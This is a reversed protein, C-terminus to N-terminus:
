PILKLLDDGIGIRYGQSFYMIEGKKNVLIVVPLSQGVSQQLSGSFVSFSEKGYLGYSVGAPMDSGSKAIFDTKDKEDKFLLHIGANCASFEKRKDRLDAVFHKTPEKDPEMFAIIVDGTGKYGKLASALKERGIFGLIAPAQDKRLIIEKRVHRGKELNFFHLNALVTGDKMRNGTVMLYNGAALDLECPFSGLRPDTEYDLSRYFGDTFKELTFHTYYGPKMENKPDNELMLKVRTGTSPGPKEFLADHWISGHFYQPLRTGPELRSPIGMSRCLAVFFIDRSHPDAIRLGYVGEPTIPARGYNGKLDVKVANRVYDVLFDPNSVAKKWFRKDFSRTIHSRWAKMWENDIRPNLIYKAFMEHSYGEPNVTNELHDLLVEATADRLDKESLQSLLTFVWKRHKPSASSAFDIISRYNGRSKRIFTWLSDPAVKLTAALRFSKASDPFTAEYAARLKDEFALMKTNAEKLSDPIVASSTKEPPPTFDMNLVYEAGPGQNAVLRLTDTDKVRLRAFGYNGRHAAWVMLDGFGTTFSCLGRSDTYTRLLPYFEAYNYLQFEVAASDAPNGASDTVYVCVRKVDTYNQLINIRTYREDKLLVDEPGRYDGFVNTNVLMARKAPGTFWAADLVPEPECAGIFHWTGDVWVEVWAHNDDCHAWRPTYCQRAPICVARLAAVTFTSEEGCRGFATRVTALPSSTREDTGRYTVKEHCWHNVALVADKMSMGIIRGRLERFFVMRSTDLNENNVRVPLVFHRFIEDPIKQGWSFTDRAHFSYRVNKLFFDGTYDAIDSLPSYALIFELAEMDRLLMPEDAVKFVQKYRSKCLERQKEYQREVDTRYAKDKLFHERQCSAMILIILLPLIRSSRIM